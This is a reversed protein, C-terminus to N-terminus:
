RMRLLSLMLIHQCDFANGWLRLGIVIHRWVNYHHWWYISWARWRVMSLMIVVPVFDCICFLLISQQTWSINRHSCLKEFSARDIATYKSFYSNAMNTNWTITYFSAKLTAKYKKNLYWSYRKMTLHVNKIRIKINWCPMRNLLKVLWRWCLKEQKGM